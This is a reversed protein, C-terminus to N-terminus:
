TGYQLRLRQPLDLWTDTPGDLLFLRGTTPLQQTPMMACARLPKREDPTVCDLMVYPQRM